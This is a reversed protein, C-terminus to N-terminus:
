IRGADALGTLSGIVPALRVSLIGAHLRGYGHAENWRQRGGVRPGDGCEGTAEALAQAIVDDFNPEESRLRAAVCTWLRVDIHEHDDLRLRLANSEFGRDAVEREIDAKVVRNM